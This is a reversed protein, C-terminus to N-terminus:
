PTCSSGCITKVDAATKASDACETCSVPLGHGNRILRDSEVKTMTVGCAPAKGERCGAAVMAACAAICNQSLPGPPPAGEPSSDSVPARADSADPPTPPPQPSPPCGCLLVVALLSLKM